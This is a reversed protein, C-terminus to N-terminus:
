KIERKVINIVFFETIEFTLNFIFDSFIIMLFGKNIVFIILIIIDDLRSKKLSMTNFYYHKNKSTRERLNIM